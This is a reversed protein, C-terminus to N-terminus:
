SAAKMGLMQQMDALKAKAASAKEMAGSLDGSQFAASANGWAQKLGALADTAGAPLAHHKKLADVKSQIASVLGPMSSNLDNWKAMLEDKKAKVADSLDKIQAPLGKAADLAASYDGSGLSTRAQQLTNQVAMAQEPVYKQAEGAIQTYATNAGQIAAEAATKKATDCASLFCVGLVVTTLINKMKM